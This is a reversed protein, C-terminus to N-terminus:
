QVSSNNAMEKAISDCQGGTLIFRGLKTVVFLGSQDRASEIKLVRGLTIYNAADEYYSASSFWLDIYKGVRPLQKTYAMVTDGEGLFVGDDTSDNTRYKM